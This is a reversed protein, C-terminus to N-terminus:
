CDKRDLATHRSCPQRRPRFRRPTLGLWAGVARSRKFTAPKELAALYAVATIPGIGPLRKPVLSSIRLSGTASRKPPSM